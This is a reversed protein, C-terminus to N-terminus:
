GHIKSFRHRDVSAPKCHKTSRMALGATFLDGRLEGSVSFVSTIWPSKTSFVSIVCAIGVEGPLDMFGYRVTARVAVSRQLVAM